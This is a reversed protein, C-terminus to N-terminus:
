EYLSSNIPSDWAVKGGAIEIPKEGEKTMLSHITVKKLSSIRLKNDRTLTKKKKEQWEM